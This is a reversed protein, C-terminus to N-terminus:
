SFSEDDEKGVRNPMGSDGALCINELFQRVTIKRSSSGNMLLCICIMSFM